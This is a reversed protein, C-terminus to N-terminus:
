QKRVIGRKAFRPLRQFQTQIGIKQKIWHIFPLGRAPNGPYSLALKVCLGEGPLLAPKMLMNGNKTLVQQRPPMEARGDALAQFGDRMLEIAKSMPLLDAVQSRSILRIPM